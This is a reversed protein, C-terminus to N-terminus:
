QNRRATVLVLLKVSQCSQQALYSLGAQSTNSVAYHNTPPPIKYAAHTILATSVTGSDICARHCVANGSFGETSTHLLSLILVPFM